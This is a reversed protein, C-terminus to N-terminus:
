EDDLLQVVSEEDALQDGVGGVISLDSKILGVAEELGLRPQGKAKSEKVATELRDVIASIFKTDKMKGMLGILVRRLYNTVIVAAETAIHQGLVKAVFQEVATMLLPSTAESPDDDYPNVDEGTPDSLVAQGDELYRYPTKACRRVCDDLFSLLHVQQIIGAPCDSLRPLSSLWVDLESPDHEFLLTPALLSKLLSTTM